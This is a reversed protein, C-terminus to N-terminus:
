RNRPRFTVPHIKRTNVTQRRQSSYFDGPVIAVDGKDPDNRKFVIGLGNECEFIVAQEGPFVRGKGIELWDGLDNIQLILLNIIGYEDLSYRFILRTSGDKWTDLTCRLDATTGETIMHTEIIEKHDGYNYSISATAKSNFLETLGYRWMIHEHIITLLPYDSEGYSRVVRESATISSIGIILSFLLSKTMNM